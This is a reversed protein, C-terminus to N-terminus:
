KKIDWKLGTLIKTLSVHRRQYCTKNILMEVNSLSDILKKVFATNIDDAKKSLLKRKGYNALESATSLQHDVLTQLDSACVM